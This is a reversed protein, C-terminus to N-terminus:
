KRKPVHYFGDYTKGYVILKNLYVYVDGDPDAAINIEGSIRGSDKKFEIGRITKSGILSPTATFNDGSFKEGGVTLTGDAPDFIAHCRSGFPFPSLIVRGDKKRVHLPGKDKGRRSGFVGVKFVPSRTMGTLFRVDLDSRAPVEDEPVTVLLDTAIISLALLGTVVGAIRWRRSLSPPGAKFLRNWGFWYVWIFAAHTLAILVGAFVGFTDIQSGWMAAVLGGAGLVYLANGVLQVLMLTRGWPRLFFAGCGASLELAGWLGSFLDTFEFRNLGCTQSQVLEALRVLGSFAGLLAFGQIFRRLWRHNEGNQM